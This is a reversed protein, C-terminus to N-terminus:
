KIADSDELPLEGNLVALGHMLRGLGAGVAASVTLEFIAEESYGHEKLTEIDRDTIKYAHRSVKCLYPRLTDPIPSETTELQNSGPVVAHKISNRISPDTVGKGHYVASILRTMLEHHKNLM